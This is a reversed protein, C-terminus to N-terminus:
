VEWPREDRAQPRPRGRAARRVMVVLRAVAPGGPERAQLSLAHVPERVARPGSVARSLAALSTAKRGSSRRRCGSCIIERSLSWGVDGETLAEGADERAGVCSELDDHIAVGEIYSTRMDRRWAPKDRREGTASGAGGSACRLRM